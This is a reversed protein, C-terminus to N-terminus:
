SAAPATPAARRERSEQRRLHEIALDLAARVGANINGGGLAEAAAWQEASARIMVPEGISPRGRRRKPESM